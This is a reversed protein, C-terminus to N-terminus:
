KITSILDNWDIEQYTYTREITGEEFELFFDIKDKYLEFEAYTGSDKEYEFHISERPTPFVDPQVELTDIITICRDILENPLKPADYGNWDNELSRYEELLQLNKTKKKM